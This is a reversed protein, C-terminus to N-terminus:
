QSKSILQVTFELIEDKETSSDDSIEFHPRAGHQSSDDAGICYFKKHGIRMGLGLSPIDTQILEGFSCGWQGTEEGVLTGFDYHKICWALDTASSFTFNSTLVYLKGQYRISGDVPEILNRDKLALTIITGPEQKYYPNQEKVEVSVKTTVDGYQTFPHDAIYRLFDDGLKSDGGGNKRLDLILNGIGKSKIKNFSNRLFEDFAERGEFSNFEIVASEISDLEYYSFPEKGSLFSFEFEALMKDRVLGSVEVEKPGDPTRISIAFTEEFGYVWFLLPAFALESVAERYSIMEGSVNGALTAIIESSKIGNIALVETESELFSNEGYHGTLIIADRPDNYKVKFPFYSNAIFITGETLGLGTHGDQLKVILPNVLRWFEVASKPTSFSQKIQDIELYFEEKRLITFPDVHIAELRETLYDLSERLLKPEHKQNYLLERQVDYQAHARHFLTNICTLVLLRLLIQYNNSMITKFNTSYNFKANCM